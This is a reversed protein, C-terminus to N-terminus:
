QGIQASHGRRLLAKQRVAEKIRDVEHQYRDFWDIPISNTMRDFWDILANHSPNVWKSFTRSVAGIQSAIIM